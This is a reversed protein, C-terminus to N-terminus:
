LAMLVLPHASIETYLADLQQKSKATFTVSLATYAQNKSPRIQIAGEGLNPIHKRVINCVAAEFEDSTKGMVKLTFSCPYQMLENTTDM